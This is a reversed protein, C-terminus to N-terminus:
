RYTAPPIPKQWGGFNKQFKKKKDSLKGLMAEEKKEKRKMWGRGGEEKSDCKMQALM